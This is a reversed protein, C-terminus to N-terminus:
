LLVYYRIVNGTELRAGIGVFDHRTLWDHKGPPTEFTPTCRFYYLCPDVTEGPPLRYLKDMVDPPGHRYGRNQIYILRGDEQPTFYMADCSFMCITRVHPFEGGHDLVKGRLRPGEFEGGLVPVSLRAGGVPPNDLRLRPALQLRTEFAFEFRPEMRNDGCLQYGVQM